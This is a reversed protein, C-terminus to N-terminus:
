IIYKKLSVVSLGYSCLTRLLVRSIRFLLIVYKMDEHSKQLRIVKEDTQLKEETAIRKQEELKGLLDREKAQFERERAQFERERARFESEKEKLLKDIDAQSFQLM